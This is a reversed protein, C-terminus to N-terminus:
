NISILEVDFILTSHPPIAGGAGQEGYALHSPIFLRWKAGTKMMQLAETWGAIVGNVPFTAPENREYSSDFVKGDTFTGNYHVTVSNNATPTAGNGEEFIQYQLGSKTSKVEDRKLNEALFKEGDEKAGAAKSNHVESMYENLLQNGELPDIKLDKKEYFDSLGEVFAAFTIEGFGQEILSQAVSAGLSYSMKESKSKLEM